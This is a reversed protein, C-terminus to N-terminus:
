VAAPRLTSGVLVKLNDEQAVEGQGVKNIWEDIETEDDPTKAKLSASGSASEVLSKIPANLRALSTQLTM